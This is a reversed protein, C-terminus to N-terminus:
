SELWNSLFLFFELQNDSIELRFVFNSNFSASRLTALNKRSCCVLVPFIHVLNGYVICFQLLIYCIATFYVLHGYFLGLDEM